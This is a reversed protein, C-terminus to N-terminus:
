RWIKPSHMAREATKPKSPDVLAFAQAALQADTLLTLWWDRGAVRDANSPGIPDGASPRSSHRGGEKTGRLTIRLQTM